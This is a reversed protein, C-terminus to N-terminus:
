DSLDDMFLGSNNAPGSGDWYKKEDLSRFKTYSSRLQPGHCILFTHGSYINFM